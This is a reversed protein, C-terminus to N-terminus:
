PQSPGAAAEAHEDVDRGDRRRRGISLAPDPRWQWNKTALTVHVCSYPKILPRYMNDLADDIIQWTEHVDLGDEMFIPACSPLFLEHDMWAFQGMALM